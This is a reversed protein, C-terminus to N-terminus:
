ADKAKILKEMDAPLPSRLDLKEETIPHILAIHYSHLAPRHIAPDTRGYM